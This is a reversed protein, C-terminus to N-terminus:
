DNPRFPIPVLPLFTHNVTSITTDYECYGGNANSSITTSHKPPLIPGSDEFPQRGMDENAQSTAKLQFAYQSDMFMLGRVLLALM